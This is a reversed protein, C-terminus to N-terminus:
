KLKELTYKHEKMLKKIQEEALKDDVTETGKFEVAPLLQNKTVFEFVALNVLTSQDITPNKKLWENMVSAVHEKPRWTKHPTKSMLNGDHIEQTQNCLFVIADIPM